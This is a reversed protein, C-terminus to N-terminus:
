EIIIKKNHENIIPLLSLGSLLFLISALIVVTWKAWTSGFFFQSIILIFATLLHYAIVGIHAWFYTKNKIIKEGAM